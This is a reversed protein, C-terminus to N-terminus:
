DPIRLPHFCVRFFTGLTFWVDFLVSTHIIAIQNKNEQKSVWQQHHLNCGCSRGFTYGDIRNAICSLNCPINMEKVFVVHAELLTARFVCRSWKPLIGQLQLCNVHTHGGFVCYIFFVVIDPSSHKHQLFINPIQPSLGKVLQWRCQWRRSFTSACSVQGM